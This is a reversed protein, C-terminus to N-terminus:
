VFTYSKDFYPEVKFTPISALVPQNLIYVHVKYNGAEPPTFSIDLAGNRIANTVGEFTKKGDKTHYSVDVRVDALIFDAEEKLLHNMIPTTALNVVAGATPNKSVLKLTSLPAFKELGRGGFNQQAKDLTIGTSGVVASSPKGM